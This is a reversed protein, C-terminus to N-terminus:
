TYSVALLFPLLFVAVLAIVFREQEQLFYAFEPPPMGSVLGIRDAVEAGLQRSKIAAMQRRRSLQTRWM